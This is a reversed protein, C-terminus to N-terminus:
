RQLSRLIASLGPRRLERKMDRALSDYYTVQDDAHGLEGELRRQEEGLSRVAQLLGEERERQRGLERQVSAPDGSRM